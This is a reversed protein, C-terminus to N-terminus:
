NTNKSSSTMNATEQEKLTDAKLFEIDNEAIYVDDTGYSIYENALKDDDKGIIVSTLKEGLKKAIESGKSVLEIALNKYDSYVLVM